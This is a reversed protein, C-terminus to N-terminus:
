FNNEPRDGTYFDVVSGFRIFSSYKETHLKKEALRPIPRAVGALNFTFAPIETLSDISPKKDLQINRKPLQNSLEVRFISDDIKIQRNLDAPGMIPPTIPTFRNIAERLINKSPPMQMRALTSPYGYRNQKSFDFSSLSPINVFQQDAELPHGDMDISTIKILTQALSPQPVVIKSGSSSSLPAKQNIFDQNDSQSIEHQISVENSATSKDVLVYKKWGLLSIKKRITTDNFEPLFLKIKDIQDGFLKLCGQLLLSHTATWPKRGRKILNKAKQISRNTPRLNARQFLNGLASQKVQQSTRGSHHTSSDNNQSDFFALLDKIDQVQGCCECGIQITCQELRKTPTVIYKRRPM